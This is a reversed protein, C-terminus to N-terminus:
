YGLFYFLYFSSIRTPESFHYKLSILFLYSYKGNDDVHMDSDNVRSLINSICNVLQPVQQSPSSFPSDSSNSEVHNSSESMSDQDFSSM